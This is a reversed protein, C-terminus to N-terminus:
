SAAPSDPNATEEEASPFRRFIPPLDVDSVRQLPVWDAGDFTELCGASDYRVDGEAPGTSIGGHDAAQNGM